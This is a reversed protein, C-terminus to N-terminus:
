KVTEPRSCIRTSHLQIDPASRGESRAQRLPASLQETNVRDSLEIDFGAGVPGLVAPTGARLDAHDRHRAAILQVSGSKLKQPIACEIGLVIEIM